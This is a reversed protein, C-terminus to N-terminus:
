KNRDFSKEYTTLPFLTITFLIDETPLVDRDKYYTKNYKIGAILCDNRYEYLLDYYETLGIKRNRRTGFTLYNSDDFKYSFKNLLTNTDGVDGNEEVFVLETNFNNFSFGANLSNYELTKFDKDISYNYNFEFMEGLNSYFSGFINSFKEDITSNSSINKEFKDRLVTGISMELYKDSDIKERKYDIGLTLSKGPEFGDSIGLRNVSFLNSTDIRRSGSNKKMDSPNFRFSVKPTIFENFFEGYKVLPLSSATEFISVFESQPSSKYVPDNKAVTNINKLYFNYNNAFGLNFYKSNSNFSINNYIRSKLNNTNILNNNGSSSFSVSGFRSINSESFLDKSFDYSPIIFQYRDSNEGRLEEYARVATQLDFNDHDLELVVHSKMKNKDGPKVLSKILNSDFLKLYTDNTVKELKVNLNSKKFNELGLNLNFKSFFHSISNKKNYLKSKYGRTLAFDAVLTSNKTEQRYENQLMYINSDFIVPTFTYDKTPSIVHFYPIQTSTGLIDSNNLQPQLFGSQREVTPDPHFFKPFYLVPMKYVKLIADNYILQKKEQDHIIKNAKISWPPCTDTQKCSTFVAKNIQTIQNKKSSSAGYIRPDNDPLGFIDKHMKIKTESSKFNQNKLDIFSNSFFYEDTGYKKSKDNTIVKINEGKLLENKTNYMFEDLKYTTSEQDVIRSKKSSTIEMLLRNFFINKSFFNYKNNLIGNSEGETFIQEDNINYTVKQTRLEFGKGPDKIIVNDIAELIRLIKDYKFKNADITINDNVRIAKSSGETFVKQENKFYTAYNSYIIINQIKDIMKINGSANLINLVKDYIFEDAEFVIGDNTTVTGGKLGKLKNGNDLIELETVNFTFDDNSLSATNFLILIVIILNLIKSKNKM